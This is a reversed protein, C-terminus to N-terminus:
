LPTLNYYIFLLVDIRLYFWSHIGFQTKKCPRTKIISSNQSNPENSFYMRIWLFSNTSWSVVPIPGLYEKQNQLM